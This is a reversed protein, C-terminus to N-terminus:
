IRGCDPLGMSASVLISIDFQHLLPTSGHFKNKKCISQYPSLSNMMFDQEMIVAYHHIHTKVVPCIM